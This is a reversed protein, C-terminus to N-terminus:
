TMRFLWLMGTHYSNALAYYIHATFMMLLLKITSHENIYDFDYVYLMFLNIYIRIDLTPVTVAMGHVMM